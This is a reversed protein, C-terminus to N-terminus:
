SVGRSPVHTSAVCLSVGASGSSGGLLVRDNIRDPSQTGFLPSAVGPTLHALHSQRDSVEVEMVLIDMALIGLRGHRELGKAQHLVIINGSRKDQAGWRASLLARSREGLRPLGSPERRLPSKQFHAPYQVPTSNM